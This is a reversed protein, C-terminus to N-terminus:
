QTEGLLSEMLKALTEHRHPRYQLKLGLQPDETSRKAWQALSEVGVDELWPSLDNNWLSSMVSEILKEVRAAPTLTDPVVLNGLCVAGYGDDYINPMPLVFVGENLDRIPHTSCAIYLDSIATGVMKVLWYTHPWSLKLEAINDDSQRDRSGGDKFRISALGAAREIVYVTVAQKDNDNVRAYAICQRPLLGTALPYLSALEQLLESTRVQREVITRQVRVLDGDIVITQTEPFATNKAM